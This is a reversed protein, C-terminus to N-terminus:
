LMKLLAFLEDVIETTHSINLSIRLRATGPPVTPPRIARVDFGAAQLKGAANVAANDDGLIVPLIPSLSNAHSCLNLLKARRWSEEDLIQAATILALALVPMPATAFIFPRATNILYDIMDARAAIMGGAAGFAKGGTHITILRDRPFNECCGKGTPGYIGTAHAEDIILIANHQLALNHLAAVDAFDGDMSFLSETVIFIQKERRGEGKERRILRELDEL